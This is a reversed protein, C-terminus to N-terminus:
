KTVAKVAAEVDRRAWVWSRGVRRLPAPLKAALSPFTDPNSMAVYLSSPKVGFAEAVEDVDMIDHSTIKV